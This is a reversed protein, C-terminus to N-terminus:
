RPSAPVDAGGLHGLHRPRDRAAAIALIVHVALAAGIRTGSVALLVLM